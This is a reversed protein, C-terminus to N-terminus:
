DFVELYNNEINYTGAEALMVNEDSLRLQLDCVSGIGSYVGVCM